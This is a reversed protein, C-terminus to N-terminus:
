LLAAFIVTLAGVYYKQINGYIVYGYVTTVEYLTLLINQGLLASYDTRYAPHRAACGVLITGM